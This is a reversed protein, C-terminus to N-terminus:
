QLMFLQVKPVYIVIKDEQQRTAIQARSKPLKNTLPVNPVFKLSRQIIYYIDLWQKKTPLLLHARYFEGNM